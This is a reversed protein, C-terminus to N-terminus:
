PKGTPTISAIVPAAAWATKLQQKRRTDTKKGVVDERTTTRMYTSDAVGVTTTGQKLITGDRGARM